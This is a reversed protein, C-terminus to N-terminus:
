QGTQRRNSRKRGAAVIERGLPVFEALRAETSRGTAFGSTMEPRTWFNQVVTLLDQHMNRGHAVHYGIGLAFIEFASHLFQGVFEGRKPDWKRFVRDGGHADIYDFTQKFTSELSVDGHPYMSALAVSEDDLVQYFDRLSSATLREVPRNHLVLFRLVLELDFREELLRESFGTTRVFSPYTALTELWTLFGPSVAVLLASRKEQATLTTGYSNLRQFLDYKAQPSSERKIIKIDIKSRKIDLRLAPSL